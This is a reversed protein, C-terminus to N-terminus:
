MARVMSATAGTTGVNYLMAPTIGTKALIATPAGGALLRRFLPIRAKANKVRDARVRHQLRRGATFDTGLNRAHKRIKSAIQRFYSMEKTVEPSSGLVMMKPESIIMHCEVSHSTTAMKTARAITRATLTASPGVAQLQVDDVVVALHLSNKWAAALKDMAEMFCIKLLTTAQSCGALITRMTRVTTTVAGRASVIRPMRYTALTFRLLFMNFGYKKGQRAVQRHKVMEYAKTM